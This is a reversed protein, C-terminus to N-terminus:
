DWSQNPKKWTYISVCAFDLVSTIITINFEENRVYKNPIYFLAEMGCFSEEFTGWFLTQFFYTSRPSEFSGGLFPIDPVGALSFAAIHGKEALLQLLFSSNSRYFFILLPVKM